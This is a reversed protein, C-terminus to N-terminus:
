SWYRKNYNYLAREVHCGNEFRRAGVAVYVAYLFDNICSGDTNEFDTFRTFQM